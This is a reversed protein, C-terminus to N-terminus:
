PSCVMHSPPPMAFTVITSRNYIQEEWEGQQAKKGRGLTTEFSTLFRTLPRLSVVVM